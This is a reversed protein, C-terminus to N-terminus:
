NLNITKTKLHKTKYLKIYIIKQEANMHGNIILQQATYVSM